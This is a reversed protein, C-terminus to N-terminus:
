EVFINLCFDINIKDKSTIMFDSQKHVIKGNKSHQTIYTCEKLPLSYFLDLKCICVVTPLIRIKSFNPSKNERLSSTDNLYTPFM